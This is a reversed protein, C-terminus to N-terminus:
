RQIEPGGMDRLQRRPQVRLHSHRSESVAEGVMQDLHEPTLRAGRRVESMDSTQKAAQRFLSKTDFHPDLAKLAIAEILEDRYNELVGDSTARAELGRPRGNYIDLEALKHEITKLVADVPNKM